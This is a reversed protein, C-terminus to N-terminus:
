CACVGSSLARSGLVAPPRSPSGQNSLAMLAPDIEIRSARDVNMPEM